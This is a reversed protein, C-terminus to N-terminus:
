QVIVEARLAGASKLAQLISALERPSVGFTSLAKAVDALSAAGELYAVGNSPKEEANVESHKV